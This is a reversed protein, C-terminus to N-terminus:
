TSPQSSSPNARLEHVNRLLLPLLKECPGTVDKWRLTPTSSAKDDPDINFNFCPVKRDKAQELALNTATVAFSTGVFVLCEANSLWEQFRDFEYFAHDGYDEDFLLAQPMCPRQCLPCPPPDKMLTPEPTVHGLQAQVEESFCSPELTKSSAYSCAEPDEVDDRPYSCKYLGVRGHAEILRARHDWTARTRSHLGDVNQTIVCLGPFTSALQAIVEHGENPPKAVKAPAFTPLWFNTYWERPNREFASRTGMEEIHQSWVSGLENSESKARSRRFPPIGSACSLGAGTVFVVRRGSCILEALSAIAERNSAEVDNEDSAVRRLLRPRERPRKTPLQLARKNSPKTTTITEANSASAAILTPAPADSSPSKFTSSSQAAASTDRSKTTSLNSTPETRPSLQSSQQQLISMKLSEALAVRLSSM